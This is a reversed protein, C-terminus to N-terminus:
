LRNQRRSRRGLREDTLAAHNALYPLAREAWQALDRLAAELKEIRQIHENRQSLAEAIVAISDKLSAHAGINAGSDSALNRLMVKGLETM